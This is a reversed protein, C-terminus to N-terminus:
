KLVFGPQCTINTGRAVTVKSPDFCGPLGTRWGVFASGAAARADLKVVTGVPFFVSCAGSGNGLTIACDIGAPQSTVRGSGNGGPLISISGNSFHFPDWATIVAHKETSFDGGVTGIIVASQANTVAKTSVTFTASTSGAPVTVSPPVTAAATNDSSLDIVFGGTPAASSLTVTGTAPDGGVVDTPSVTLSSLSVSSAPPPTSSVTCGSLRATAATASGDNVDVTCDAPATFGSRDIKFKGAGDSTGMAVGDVTITSNAIAQGEIRLQTGSIEARSISVAAQVASAAVFAAIVVLFGVVALRAYSGSPVRRSTVM